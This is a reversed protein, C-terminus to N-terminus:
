NIREIELVREGESAEVRKERWRRKKEREERELTLLASLPPSIPYM